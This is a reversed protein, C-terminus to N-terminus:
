GTPAVTPSPPISTVKPSWNPSFRVGLSLWDAQEFAKTARRLRPEMRAPDFFEIPENRLAKQLAEAFERASSFRHWPQKAMAKHVVRSVPQSVAGNLDSAPPPTQHLIADVIQPQTSREFPRRQTLAEYCVAGLSFIDSLPSLVKMELQEPSMYLLTGKMGLTTRSDVMHAVGFDIVKVSDDDMVFINSPKLDRHILGHEYPGGHLGRCTQSMIEVVRQPNLRHASDRILKDLPTGPLLPM